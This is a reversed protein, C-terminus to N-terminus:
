LPERREPNKEPDLMEDLIEQPIQFKRGLKHGRAKTKVKRIRHSAIPTGFKRREQRWKCGTPTTIHHDDAIM